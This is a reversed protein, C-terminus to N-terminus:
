VRTRSRGGGGHRRRTRGTTDRHDPDHAGIGRVARGTAAGGGRVRAKAQYGPHPRTSHGAELVPTRVDSIALGAALALWTARGVVGDSALHKAQQFSVVATRTTAGFTGNAPGPKYGLTTLRQQLAVVDAGTSGLKVVPRGAVPFTTTTAPVTTTTKSGSKGTTTTVSKTTTTAAKVTSTTSVSTTTSAPITTSSASLTSTVPLTAVGAAVVSSPAGKPVVILLVITTVVGLGVVVIARLSIESLDLRAISSAVLLLGRQWRCPSRRAASM